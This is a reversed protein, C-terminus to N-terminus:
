TGKRASRDQPSLSVFNHFHLVDGKHARDDDLVRAHHRARARREAHDLATADRDLAAADRPHALAFDGRRERVHVREVRLSCQDRGAQDVTVRVRHEGAIAARLELQARRALGILLDLRRAAPDVRREPRSAGRERGARELVQEDCADARHEGAARRRELDLGAVREGGLALEAQEVRDRARRVADGHLEHRRQERVEHRRIAARIAILEHALDRSCHIGRAAARLEGSAGNTM